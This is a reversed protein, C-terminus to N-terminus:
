DELNLWDELQKCLIEAREWEKQSLWCQVTYDEKAMACMAAYLIPIDDELFEFSTKVKPHIASM